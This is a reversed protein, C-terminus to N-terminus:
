TSDCCSTPYKVLVLFLMLNAINDRLDHHIYMVGYPPTEPPYWNVPHLCTNYHCCCFIMRLCERISSNTSRSNSSMTTIIFCRFVIMPLEHPDFAMHTANGILFFLKLLLRQEKVDKLLSHYNNSSWVSQVIVLSCCVGGDKM